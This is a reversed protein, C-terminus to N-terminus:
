LVPALKRSNVCTTRLPKVLHFDSSFINIPSKVQGPWTNKVCEHRRLLVRSWYDCPPTIDLSLMHTKEAKRLMLDVLNLWNSGVKAWLIRVPVVVMNEVVNKISMIEKETWQMFLGSCWVREITMSHALPWSTFTNTVVESLKQLLHDDLSWLHM